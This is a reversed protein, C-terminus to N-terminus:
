VSGRHLLAICATDFILRLDFTFSRRKIYDLDMQMWQAFKVDRGGYAQWTCTLGPLVSLRARQWATCALSEKVPLPRPGVLSMDGKLVNLLQPLEDICSKRLYKGVRTVRPDNTLKFAPGDQESKDLLEEQLDEANVVMTRFKLIGFKRGDKGEREQMFFIPGKSSCKIAGAAVVLVPSLLVLGASAGVVDIGRKWWPTRLVPIFRHKTEQVNLGQFALVEEKQDDSLNKSGGFAKSKPVPVDRHRGDRRGGTLADDDDDDDSYANVESSLARVEEALSVLEDDFPYTSVATDVRVGGASLIKTVENAVKFTGNRDSEPLLISLDGQYWGITDSIRLRDLLSAFSSSEFFDDALSSTKLRVLGLDRAFERRDSRYVEKKLETMFQSDSLVIEAGAPKIRRFMRGLRSNRTRAISRIM